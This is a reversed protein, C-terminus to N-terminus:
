SRHNTLLSVKNIFLKKLLSARKKNVGMDSYGVRSASRLHIVKQSADIRIELDDVFKFMASTFTAALYDSSEVQINGGMDSIIDKLITVYDVTTNKDIIIPDIYQISDDKHESCVCNPKSSCKSLRGEVLGYAEGDRSNKNMNFLLFIVSIIIVLLIISATKM